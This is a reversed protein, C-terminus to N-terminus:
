KMAAEIMSSTAEQEPAEKPLMVAAEVQRILTKTTEPLPVEIKDRGKIITFDLRFRQLGRIKQIPRIALEFRGDQPIEYLIGVSTSLDVELTRLHEIGAVATWFDQWQQVCASDSRDWGSFVPTHNQPIRVCLNRISNFNRATTCRAFRFLLVPHTIVFTSRTYLIQTAEVYVQRCTQLLAPRQPWFRDERRTIRKGNLDTRLPDWLWDGEPVARIKFPVLIMSNKQNSFVYSYIEQRVELPLRSLISDKLGMRPDLDLNSINDEARRPRVSCPSLRTEPYKTQQGQHNGSEWRKRRNGKKCNPFYRGRFAWGFPIMLGCPVWIPYSDVWHDPDADIKEEANKVFPRPVRGWAMDKCGYRPERM